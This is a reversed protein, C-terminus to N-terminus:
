PTKKDVKSKDPDIKNKHKEIQQKNFGKIFMFVFFVFLALVIFDLIEKM